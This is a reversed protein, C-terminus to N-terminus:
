PKMTTLHPGLNHALNPLVWDLWRCLRPRTESPDILEHVSFGEARPFPSQRAALMDELEKRKADPDAAAEIERRFAVAVGGELPLAGTEASPWSMVFGDPGFHAAGAVGYVKRVIVSAWPVRSQMVAAIAAAGHRITSSAESASGIMFGPEDVLSVIPLHFTNCTDVFKRVKQAGDASMAGAYFRCDNALVGVSVGNLRALGTIQGPGYKRGMEFFSGTDVVSKIIKRMDFAKRRDRPVAEKLWDDSRQPDDTAELQPPLEFVSQPMYSLFQKIQALAAPEDEAVNDVTGNKTHVDPGGLQEKTLTEGLAREVVAPGAILVQANKAMVSFHSSVLRAAPMGAVAGMAGTAVPVVGMVGCISAFRQAAFVPEGLPRPAGKGGGAGTVSGGGGEHLRVLPVKYKIALDEAYVSKRLGAPNPSGGRLTFDEGGVAIRRGAVRGMGLVYNAPQFGTENGEDDFLPAGAGEGIEEFSGEDILEAIRERVTLRGKEHHRAVSDAGGQEKAADRRAHIQDIEGQWHPPKKQNM